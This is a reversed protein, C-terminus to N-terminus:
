SGRCLNMTLGFPAGYAVLDPVIGEGAEAISEPMQVQGAVQVYVFHAVYGIVMTVFVLARLTEPDDKFLSERLWPNQEEDADLYWALEAPEVTEGALWRECKDLGEGCVAGTEERVVRLREAAMRAASLLAEPRQPWPLANM